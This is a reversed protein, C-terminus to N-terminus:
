LAMLYSLIAVVGLLSRVIAAFDPLPPLTLGKLV